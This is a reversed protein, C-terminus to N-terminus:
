QKTSCTSSTDQKSQKDISQASEKVSSVTAQDQNQVPEPVGCANNPLLSLPLGQGHLSYVPGAMAAMSPVVSGPFHGWQINMHPMGTMFDLGMHQMGAPLMMPAM